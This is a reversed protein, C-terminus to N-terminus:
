QSSKPAYYGKRALVKLGPRTTEIKIKRFSGDRATNRPYYGLTYQSRLEESIQDFAEQLKKEDRVSIVRGGTDEALKKAVSEGSYTFYQRPDAILIIHIVADTRQAAEAVKLETRLHELSGELFRFRGRWWEQGYGGYTNESPQFGHPKLILQNNVTDTSWDFNGLFNMGLLGTVEPNPWNNMILVDVDNLELDGVRLSHLKILPVLAPGNATQTPLVMTQNTIKIGLLDAVSRSISTISAGTDVILKTHLRNNLEVSVIM